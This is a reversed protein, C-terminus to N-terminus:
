RTVQRKAWKSVLIDKFLAIRRSEPDNIISMLGINFFYSM